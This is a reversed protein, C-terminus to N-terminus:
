FKILFLFRPNVTCKFSLKKKKEQWELHSVGLQMYYHSASKRGDGTSDQYVNCCGTELPFAQGNVQLCSILFPRAKKMVLLQQFQDYAAYMEKLIEAAWRREALTM